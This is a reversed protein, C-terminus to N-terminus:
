LGNRTCCCASTKMKANGAMKRKHAQQIESGRLARRAAAPVRAAERQASQPHRKKTPKCTNGIVTAGHCTHEVILKPEAASLCPTCARVNSADRM